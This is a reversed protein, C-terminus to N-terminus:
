RSMEICDNVICLDSSQLPGPWAQDPMMILVILGMVQRMMM